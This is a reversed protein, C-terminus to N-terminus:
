NHHVIETHSATIFLVTAIAHYFMYLRFFIVFVSTLKWLYSLRSPRFYYFWLTLHNQMMSIIKVLILIIKVLPSDLYKSSLGSIDYPFTVWLINIQLKIFITQFKLFISCQLKLQIISNTPIKNKPKKSNPTSPLHHLKKIKHHLQHISNIFTTFKTSIRSKLL